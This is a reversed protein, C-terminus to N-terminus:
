ADRDYDIQIFKDIAGDIEGFLRTEDVTEKDKRLRTVCIQLAERVRSALYDRLENRSKDRWITDPIVIDAGIFRDRKSRRIHDISEGGFQQFEGDIRLALAYHAISPCYTSHCHKSFLRWLDVKIDGLGGDEPGGNQCGISIIGLKDYWMFTTIGLSWFSLWPWPFVLVFQPRLALRSADM